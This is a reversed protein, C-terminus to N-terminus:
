LSNENSILNKFVNYFKMATEMFWKYEEEFNQKHDSVLKVQANNDNFKWRSMGYQSLEENPVGLEEQVYDGKEEKLRKMM